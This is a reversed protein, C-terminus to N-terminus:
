AQSITILFDDGNLNHIYIFNNVGTQYTGNIIVSGPSPLTALPDTADNHVIVVVTGSVPTKTVLDYTIAGTLPLGVSGYVASRFFEIVTTGTVQLAEKYAYQDHNHLADASGGSTLTAANADSINNVEANAEIGTLKSREAPLMRVYTATDAIDDQDLVVAGTQGNVSTVAGGGGIMTVLEDIAAQVQTATLGSAAPDYRVDAADQKPYDALVQIAGNNLNQRLVFALPQAFGTTPSTTTWGGSADPYLITGFPYLDTNVDRLTGATIMMGIEGTALNQMAVGNCPAATNNGLAVEFADEGLNYGTVRLPQGKSINVTAKIKKHLANAHINNSLDTLTKNTMTQIATVGVLQQEIAAPDYVAPDMGGASNQFVYEIASKVNTPGVVITSSFPVDEANLLVVGVKGNVSAVGGTSASVLDVISAITYNVTEDTGPLTGLLLSSLQAAAVDYTKIKAM